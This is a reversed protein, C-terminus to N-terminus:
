IFLRASVVLNCRLHQHSVAPAITFTQELRQRLYKENRRLSNEALVRVLKKGWNYLFRVSWLRYSMKEETQTQMLMTRICTAIAKWLYRSAFIEIWYPIYFQIFLWTEFQVKGFHHKEDNNFVYIQSYSLTLSTTKRKFIKPINLSLLTLTEVRGALVSMKASAFSYAFHKWLNLLNIM